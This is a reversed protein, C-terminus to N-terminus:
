SLAVISVSDDQTADEDSEELKNEIHDNETLPLAFLALQEMHSGLHKRFRKITSFLANIPLTSTSQARSTQVLDAEWNDCLQCATAGIKETAEEGQLLLAHLSHDALIDAHTSKTHEIFTQKTTLAECDCFQCQWERRHTNLEHNFWERRSKFMLM